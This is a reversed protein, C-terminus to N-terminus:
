CAVLAILLAVPGLTVADVEAGQKLAVGAVVAVLPAAVAATAARGGASAGGSVM